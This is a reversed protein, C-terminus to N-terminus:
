EKGGAKELAGRAKSIWAVTNYCEDCTNEGEAHSLDHEAQIACIQECVEMLAEYLDPAAAILRANAVELGEGVAHGNADFVMDDSVYEYGQEWPTPSVGLQELAKM